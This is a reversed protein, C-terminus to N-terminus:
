SEKQESLMNLAISLERVVGLMGGALMTLLGERSPIKALELLASKDSLVGDILGVKFELLKHKRAFDHLVKVPALVDKSFVIASPGELYEDLDNVKLENLARKTLTNKYIKIDSDAERLTRRLETLEDVTLGRYDVLVFAASKDFNDKIEKIIEGKVTLAKESAM